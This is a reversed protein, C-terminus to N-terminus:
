AYDRIDVIQIQHPFFVVYHISDGFNIEVSDYGTAKLFNTNFLEIEEDYFDSSLSYLLSPVIDGDAYSEIASQLVTIEGEYDIDGFDMLAEKYNPSDLILNRVINYTADIGKISENTRSDVSLPNKLNLYASHIIHGYTKATEIDNTFYFGSGFQDNGINTYEYSFQEIVQNAGHYVIDTQECMIRRM